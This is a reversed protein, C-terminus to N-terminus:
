NAKAWLNCDIKFFDEPKSPNSKVCKEYYTDVVNQWNKETIEGKTFDKLEKITKLQAKNNGDYILKYKKPNILFCIKSEYSLTQKEKGNKDNWSFSSEGLCYKGSKIKNRQKWLLAVFKEFVSENFRYVHWEKGIIKVASKFCEFDGKEMAQILWESFLDKQKLNLNRKLDATKQSLEEKLEKETM